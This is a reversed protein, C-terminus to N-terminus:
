LFISAFLNLLNNENKKKLFFVSDVFALNKKEKEGLSCTVKRLAETTIPRRVRDTAGEALLM